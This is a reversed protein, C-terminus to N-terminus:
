SPLVAQADTRLADFDPRDTICPRTPDTVLGIGVRRFVECLVISGATASGLTLARESEADTAGVLHVLECEGAPLLGDPDYDPTSMVLEIGWGSSESREFEEDHVPQALGSTAFVWHGRGASPPFRLIGGGPWNVSLKPDGPSMISEPPDTEGFLERFWLERARMHASFRTQYDEDHVGTVGPPDSYDLM